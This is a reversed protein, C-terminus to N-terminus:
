SQGALPFSDDFGNYRHFIVEGGFIQGVLQPSPIQPDTHGRDVSRDRQHYRALHYSLVIESIPESGILSDHIPIGMVVQYAFAAPLDELELFGGDLLQLTLDDVPVLKPNSVALQLEIAETAVTGPLRGISAGPGAPSEVSFRRPEEFSVLSAVELM